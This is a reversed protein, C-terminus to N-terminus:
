YDSNFGRLFDDEPTGKAGGTKSVGKVPARSASAANQKLIQNEKKTRNLEATDSKAKHARYADLLTAKGSACATIVEQPLRQGRLDPFERLLERAQEKFSNEHKEVAPEAAPAPEEAPKDITAAKAGYKRALYDDVIEESNGKSLLAERESNRSNNLVDEMLAEPSEYGLIKAVVMTKEHLAKAEQSQTARAKYLESSRALQMIEPLAAPDIEEEVDEHNFQYKVKIKQSQAEALQSEIAPVGDSGDEEVEGNESQEIAPAEEETNEIASEDTGTEEEGEPAASEEATPNSWSGSDFYDDEETWGDPLIPEIDEEMEYTLETNENM